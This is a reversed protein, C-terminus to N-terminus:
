GRRWATFAITMFGGIVGRTTHTIDREDRDSGAIRADACQEFISWFARVSGYGSLGEPVEFVRSTSWPIFRRAHQASQESSFCERLVRAPRSLGRWRVKPNPFPRRIPEILWFKRDAITAFIPRLVCYGSLLCHRQRHDVAGV